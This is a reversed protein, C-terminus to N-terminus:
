GPGAAPPRDTLLPLRVPVTTGTGERSQLDIGGSHHTVIANVITLGLGTGPISRGTANSARFFQTFLEKQDAEPIGIGTDRVTVVATAAEATATVQIHGGAPTFKVANSLLNMLVQDLQGADGNVTLGGRWVLAAPDFTFKLSGLTLNGVITADGGDMLSDRRLGDADSTTFTLPLPTGFKWGAPLRLSAKYTLQEASYGAPYLLLQNWTIVAMKDTASAGASSSFATM